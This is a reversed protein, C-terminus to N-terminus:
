RWMNRAMLKMAFSSVLYSATWSTAVMSRAALSLEMHAMRSSGKIAQHTMPSVLHVIGEFFLPCPIHVLSSSLSPSAFAYSFCFLFVYFLLLRTPHSSIRIYGLHSCYCCPVCGQVFSDYVAFFVM